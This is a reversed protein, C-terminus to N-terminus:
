NVSLFIHEIILREDHRFSKTPVLYIEDVVRFWVQGQLPMDHGGCVLRWVQCKACTKESNEDGNESLIRQPFAGVLLRAAAAFRKQLAV